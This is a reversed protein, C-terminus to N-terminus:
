ALLLSRLSAGLRVQDDSKACTIRTGAGSASLVTAPAELARRGLRRRSNRIHDPLRAARRARESTTPLPEPPLQTDIDMVITVPPGDGAQSTGFDMEVHAVLHPIAADFEVQASYTSSYRPFYLHRVGESDYLVAQGQVPPDGTSEYSGAIIPVIAGFSHTADICGIEVRDVVPNIVLLVDDPVSVDCTVVSQAADGMTYSVTITGTLPAGCLLDGQYDHLVNFCATQPRDDLSELQQAKRELCGRQYDGELQACCADLWECVTDGTLGARPAVTVGSEDAASGASGNTASTAESTAGPSAGESNSSTNGVVHSTADVGNGDSVAGPNSPAEPNSSDPLVGSTGDDGTGSAAGADGSSGDRCGSMLLFGVMAYALRKM